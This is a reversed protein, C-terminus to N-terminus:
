LGFVSNFLTQALATELPTCGAVLVVLACIGGIFMKKMVRKRRKFLIWM